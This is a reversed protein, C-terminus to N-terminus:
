DRQFIQYLPLTFLLHNLYCRKELSIDSVTFGTHLPCRILRVGEILRATYGFDGFKNGKNAKFSVKM